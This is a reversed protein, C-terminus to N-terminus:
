LNVQCLEHANTPSEGTTDRSSAALKHRGKAEYKIQLMASQAGQPVMSQCMIM